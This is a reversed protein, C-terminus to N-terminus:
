VITTTDSAPRVVKATGTVLWNHNPEICFSLVLGSKAPNKLEFADQKMRIDHGNVHGLGLSISTM